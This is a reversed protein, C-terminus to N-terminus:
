DYLKYVMEAPAEVATYFIENLNAGSGTVSLYLGEGPMLLVQSSSWKEVQSTGTVGFDTILRAPLSGTAPASSALFAQVTGTAALQVTLLKLNWVYGQEPGNPVFQTLTGNGPVAMRIPKFGRARSLQRADLEERFQAGIEHRDPIEVTMGGRILVKPM